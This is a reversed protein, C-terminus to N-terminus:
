GLPRWGSGFAVQNRFNPILPNRFDRKLEALVSLKQEGSLTSSACLLHLVTDGSLPHQQFCPERSASIWLPVRNSRILARFVDTDSSDLKVPRGNRLQARDVSKKETSFFM